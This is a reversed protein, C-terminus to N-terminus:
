IPSEALLDRVRRAVYEGVGIIAMQYMEQAVSATDLRGAEMDERSIQLVGSGALKALLEGRESQTHAVEEDATSRILARIKVDPRITWQELWEGVPVPVAHEDVPLAIKGREGRWPPSIKAQGFLVVDHTGRKWGDPLEEDPPEVVPEDSSEPETFRHLTAGPLVRVLLGRRGGLLINRLQLAVTQFASERGAKYLAINDEIQELDAVLEERLDRRGPTGM